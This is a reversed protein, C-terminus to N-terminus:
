PILDYGPVSVSNRAIQLEQRVPAVIRATPAPRTSGAEVPYKEKRAAGVRVALAAPYANRQTLSKDLVVDKVHDTLDKLKM